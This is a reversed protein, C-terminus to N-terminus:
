NGLIGDGGCNGCFHGGRGKCVPCSTENQDSGSGGCASCSIWGDGGCVSCTYTNTTSTNTANTITNDSVVTTKLSDNSNTVNLSGNTFNKMPPQIQTSFMMAIVVGALLGLCILVGILILAPKREM